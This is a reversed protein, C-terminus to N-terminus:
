KATLRAWNQKPAKIRESGARCLPCAEPAWTQIEFRLLSVIPSDEFVHVTPQNMRDIITAVLPAFKVDHPTGVRIGARVASTTQLTTILEEVQLVTESPKIALRSWIQIKGPGKETFEHRAGLGVAVAYSLTASAHDSGVVVDVPGPYVAKVMRVLQDAFLEALPTYQLVAPVNVFGDSCLGSTLEVHPRSKDGDHLWLAECIEFIYRTEKERLRRGIDRQADRLLDALTSGMVQCM